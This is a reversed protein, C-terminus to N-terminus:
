GYNRLKGHVIKWGMNQLRLWFAPYKKLFKDWSQGWEQHHQHCKPVVNIETDHGGSGRTKIHSAESPPHRGCVICPQQRIQKLLEGDRKRSPKEIIM